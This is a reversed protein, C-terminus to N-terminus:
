HIAGGQIIDQPRRTNPRLLEFAVVLIQFGLGVGFVLGALGILYIAPEYVRSLWWGAFDVATALMPLPTMVWRVGAPLSTVCFLLGVALAFVPISLMHQHSVLILRPLTYQPQARVATGAPQTAANRTTFKSIMAFDVTFEDPGFPSSKSINTETSQAHCRLCDRMMVRRATRKDLGEDLGQEGAGAKLWTELVSFDDDSEVYQRMQGRLMTLMRSPVEGGSGPTIKSGAYVAELDGLSLGPKGDASAHREYINAVAVLYGSGVIALFLLLMLRVGLPLTALMGSTIIIPRDITM